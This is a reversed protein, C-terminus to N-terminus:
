GKKFPIRAQSVGKTKSDVFRFDVRIANATLRMTSNVSGRINKGEFAFTVAGGDRTGVATGQSSRAEYRRARDNYSITGQFSQAGEGVLSCRGNYVLHDGSPRLSLRCDVKGGEDGSLSGAGHWTGALKELFALDAEAAAVPAALAALLLALALKMNGIEPHAPTLM